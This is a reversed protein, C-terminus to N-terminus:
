IEERDINQGYVFLTGHTTERYDLGLWRLMQEQSPRLAVECEWSEHASQIGARVAALAIREIHGALAALQMVAPMGHEDLYGYAVREAIAEDTEGVSPPTILARLAEAVAFAEATPYDHPSFAQGETEADFEALAKRAQEIRDSASTQEIYETM